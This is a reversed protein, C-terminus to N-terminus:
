WAGPARTSRADVDPLHKRRRWRSRCALAQQAELRTEAAVAVAADTCRLLVDWARLDGPHIPAELERGMSKPVRQLLRSILAAHAADRLQGPAPYCRVWLDLGVVRAIRAATLLNPLPPRGRELRSIQSKSLGVTAGVSVQSLGASLRAQRIEDAYERVLNRGRRTGLALLREPTPV